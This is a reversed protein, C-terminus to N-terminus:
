YLATLIGVLHMLGSAERASSYPRSDTDIRSFLIKLNGADWEILLDRKFLKRLREQIKILIDARAALTQFAGNLTEIQYRRASEGKSGFTAQDYLVSGGRHGDFDSRFQEQMGMRGASMFRVNKGNVHQSLANKLGRLLQTKGSGNPGLLITLGRNLIINRNVVTLTQILFEHLTLLPTAKLSFLDM